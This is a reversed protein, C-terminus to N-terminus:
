WSWEGLHIYSCLLGQFKLFLVLFIQHIVCVKLLSGCLDYTCYNAFVSSNSEFAGLLQVERPWRIAQNSGTFGGALGKPSAGGGPGPTSWHFVWSDLYQPSIWIEVSSSWSQIFKFRHRAASATLWFSPKPNLNGGFHCKKVNSLSWPEGLTVKVSCVRHSVTVWSFSRLKESHFCLLSTTSIYDELM